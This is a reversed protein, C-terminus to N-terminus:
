AEEVWINEALYKDVAVKSTGNLHLLVGWAGTSAVSVLAGRVLGVDALRKVYADTALVDAVRLARSAAAVSLPFSALLTAAL